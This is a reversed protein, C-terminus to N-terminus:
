RVRLIFWCGFGRFSPLNEMKSGGLRLLLSSVLFMLLGWWGGLSSSASEFGREYVRRSLCARWVMRMMVSGRVGNEEM